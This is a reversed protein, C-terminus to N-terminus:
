QGTYQASWVGTRKVTVKSTRFDKDTETWKGQTLSKRDASLIATQMSSGAGFSIERKAPNWICPSDVGRGSDKSAIGLICASYYKNPDFSNTDLEKIELTGTWLVGKDDKGDFAWTGLIPGNSEAAQNGAFSTTCVFGQGSCIVAAIIISFIIRKMSMNRRKTMNPAAM